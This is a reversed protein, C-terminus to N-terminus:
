REGVADHEIGTSNTSTSIVDYITTQELRAPVTAALRGLGTAAAVDCAVAAWEALVAVPYRVLEDATARRDGGSTSRWGGRAAPRRRSGLFFGAAAAAVTEHFASRLYRM